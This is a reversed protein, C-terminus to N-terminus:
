SAGREKMNRTSGRKLLTHTPLVVVGCIEDSDEFYEGVL